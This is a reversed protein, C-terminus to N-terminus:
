GRRQREEIMTEAMGYALRALADRDLQNEVDRWDGNLLGNVIQIAFYDRLLMGEMNNEVQGHIPFAPGGYDIAM